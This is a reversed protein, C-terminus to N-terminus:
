AQCEALMKQDPSFFPILVDVLDDTPQEFAPIQPGAFAAFGCEKMVEDLTGHEYCSIFFLNLAEVLNTKAEQENPGQTIVDLIPCCAIIQGTEEDKRFQAPLKAEFQIRFRM